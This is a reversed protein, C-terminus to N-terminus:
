VPPALATRWALEILTGMMPRLGCLITVLVLASALPSALFLGNIRPAARAAIAAILTAFIQAVIAPAAIDLSTEVSARVLHIMGRTSAAIQTSSSAAVFRGCLYTMAGTSLFATAYALSFLRGLPGEVDGFISDRGTPRMALAADMLSGAAAAAAAVVAAALGFAAGIIAERAFDIISSAHPPQHEINAALAPVLALALTGRVIRPVAGSGAVPVTAAFAGARVLAAALTAPALDPTM